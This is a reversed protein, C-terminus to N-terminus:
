ITVRGSIKRRPGWEGGNRSAGPTETVAQGASRELPTGGAVLSGSNRAVGPKAAEHLPKPRIGDGSKEQGAFLDGQQKPIPRKMVAIASATIAEARAKRLRELRMRETQDWLLQHYPYSM